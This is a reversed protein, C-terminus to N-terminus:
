ISETGTTPPVSKSDTDRTNGDVIQRIIASVKIAPDDEDGGVVAQPVKGDVRDGFERMAVVDGEDIKSLLRDALKEIALPDKEERRKIARIIAQQWIKDRKPRGGPNGSQGPAFTM